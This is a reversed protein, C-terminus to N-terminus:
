RKSKMGIIKLFEICCPLFNYNDINFNGDSSIKSLRYLNLIRSDACSLVTSSNYSMSIWWFIDSGFSEFTSFGKHLPSFILFKSKSLKVSPMPSNFWSCHDLIPLSLDDNFSSFTDTVQPFFFALTRLSSRRCNGDHTVITRLFWFVSGCRRGSGVTDRRTSTHRPLSSDSAFIVMPGNNSLLASIIQSTSTRSHRTFIPMRGSHWYEDFIFRTTLSPSLHRNGCWLNSSGVLYFLGLLAVEWFSSFPIVLIGRSDHFLTDCNPQTDCSESAGTEWPQFTEPFGRHLFTKSDIWLTRNM